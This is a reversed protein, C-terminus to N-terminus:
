IRAIKEAIEEKYKKKLEVPLFSIDIFDYWQTAVKKFKNFINEIVKNELGSSKMAQM